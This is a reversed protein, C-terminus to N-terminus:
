ISFSDPDQSNKRKKQYLKENLHKNAYFLALMDFIKQISNNEKSMTKESSM